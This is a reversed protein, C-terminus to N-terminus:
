YSIEDAASLEPAQQLKHLLRQRHLGTSGFKQRCYDPDGLLGQQHRLLAAMSGMGVAQAAEATQNSHDSHFLEV